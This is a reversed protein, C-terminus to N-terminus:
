LYKGGFYIPLGIVVCMMLYMVMLNIDYVFGKKRTWYFPVLQTLSMPHKIMFKFLEKYHIAQPMLFDLKFDQVSISKNTHANEHELIPKLLHPYKKLNKNIEIYTGFNNAIGHNVEIIPLNTSTM